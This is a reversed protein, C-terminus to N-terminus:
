QAHKIETSSKIKYIMSDQETLKLDTEANPASHKLPKRWLPKRRKKEENRQSSSTM